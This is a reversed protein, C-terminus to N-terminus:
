LHVVPCEADADRRRPGPGPLSGVQGARRHGAGKGARHRRLTWGRDGDGLRGALGPAGCRRQGGQWAEAQILIYAAIMHGGVRRPSNFREEPSQHDRANARANPTAYQEFHEGIEGAVRAALRDGLGPMSLYIEGGPFAKSQRAVDGVRNRRRSMSAAHSGAAGPAAAAASPPATAPRGSSRSLAPPAPARQRRGITGGHGTGTAPVAAPALRPGAAPRADGGPGRSPAAGGPWGTHPRSAAARTRRGPVPRFPGPRPWRGARHRPVASRPWCPTRVPCRTPLLWWAGSGPGPRAAPRARPAAPAACGAAGAPPWRRRSRGAPAAPQGPWPSAPRPRGRAEPTNRRHGNRARSRRWARSSPSSCWAGGRRTM